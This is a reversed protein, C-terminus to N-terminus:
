KRACLQYYGFKGEQYLQVTYMIDKLLSNAIQLGFKPFLEMIRPKFYSEFVCKFYKPMLISGVPSLDLLREIHMGADKM